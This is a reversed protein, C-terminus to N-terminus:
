RGKEYSLGDSDLIEPIDDTCNVQTVSVSNACGYQKSVIYSFCRGRHKYYGQSRILENAINPGPEVLILRWRDTTGGTGSDSCAMVTFLVVAFVLIILVSYFIEKPM